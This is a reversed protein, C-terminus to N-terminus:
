KKAKPAAPAPAAAPAAAATASAETKIEEAERTARTVVALVEDPAEKITVNPISIDRVHISDGIGLNTVDVVIKEPIDAPMCEVKVSQIPHGLVGGEKVGAAVGTIELRCDVIVKENMDVHLFDIHYFKEDKLVHKQVERIVAISKSEGESIGLDILHSQKKGRVIATFEKHNVEIKIPDFNHGYYIAPIWGQARAKRTYSKGIGERQRATLKIIDM